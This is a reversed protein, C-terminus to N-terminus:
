KKLRVMERRAASEKAALAIELVARGGAADLAPQEGAEICRVFHKMEEVFMHNLENNINEPFVELHRDDKGFLTVKRDIYDWLLVGDEGIIECSRRYTRQLYDLHLNTTTGSEHRLLIDATDEVDIELSSKKEAICFVEVVEGFL